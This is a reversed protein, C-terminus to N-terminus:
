VHSYISADRRGSQRWQGQLNRDFYSKQALYVIEENRLLVVLGFGYFEEFRVMGEGLTWVQAWVNVGRFVGFFACHCRLFGSGALGAM